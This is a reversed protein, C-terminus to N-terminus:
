FEQFNRLSWFYCKFDRICNNQKMKIPKYLLLIALAISSTRM